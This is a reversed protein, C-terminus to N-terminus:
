KVRAVVEYETNKLEQKGAPFDGFDYSETRSDSM